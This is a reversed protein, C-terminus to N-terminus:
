SPTVAAWAGDVVQLIKGNDTSTVKPLGSKLTIAGTTKDYTVSSAENDDLLFQKISAERM